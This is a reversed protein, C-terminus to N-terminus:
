PSAEALTALLMLTQGIAAGVSAEGNDLEFPALIARLCNHAASLKNRADRAIRVLRANHKKLNQIQQKLASESM